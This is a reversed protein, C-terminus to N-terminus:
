QVRVTQRVGHAVTQRSALSFMRPAEVLYRRWLRRPETLLRHLWEVRTQRMWLPARQLGGTLFLLSAGVCLATGTARGRDKIHLVLLHQQPSGVALFVFRAPSREVFRAAELVADRDRIFGMPPNHHRVNRLGYKGKLKAVSGEDGGVITVREYPNIVYEFLFWSLDSGPVVPLRVRCFRAVLPLIRSDCLSLDADAYVPRLAEGDQWARVVHDANPTVIYGFPDDSRRQELYQLVAEANVGSFPMGCFDIAWRGGPREPRADILAM